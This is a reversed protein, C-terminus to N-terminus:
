KHPIEQVEAERWAAGPEQEKKVTNNETKESASTTPEVSPSREEALVEDELVARQALEDISPVNTEDKEVNNEPPAM